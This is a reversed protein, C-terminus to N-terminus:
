WQNQKGWLLTMHNKRKRKQISYASPHNRQSSQIIGPKLSFIWFM